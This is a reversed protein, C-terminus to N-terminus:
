YDVEAPSDTWLALEVGGGGRAGGSYLRQRVSGATNPVAYCDDSTGPTRAGQKAIKAM